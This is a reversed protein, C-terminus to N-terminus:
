VFSSQQVFSNVKIKLMINNEVVDMVIIGYWQTNINFHHHEASLPFAFFFPNLLSDVMNTLMIDPMTM